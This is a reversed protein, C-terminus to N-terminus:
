TQLDSSTLSTSVAGSPSCWEASRHCVRGARSAAALWARRCGRLSCPTRHHFMARAREQPFRADQQSVPSIGAAALRLLLPSVLLHLSTLGREGISCKSVQILSATPANERHLDPWIFLQWSFFARFGELCRQVKHFGKCGVGMRGAQFCAGLKQPAWPTGLAAPVTQPTVARRTGSFPLLLSCGPESNICTFLLNLHPPQILWQM